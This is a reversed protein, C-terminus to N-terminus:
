EPMVVLSAPLVDARYTYIYSIRNTLVNSARAVSVRGSRNSVPIAIWKQYIAEEIAFVIQRIDGTSGHCQGANLYNLAAIPIVMNTGDTTYGAIWNTPAANFEARGQNAMALVVLVMMAVTKVLKM